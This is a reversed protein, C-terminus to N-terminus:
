FANAPCARTKCAGFTVVHLREGSKADNIDKSVDAGMLLDESVATKGDHLLPEM